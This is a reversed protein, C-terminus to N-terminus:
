AAGGRGEHFIFAVGGIELRWGERLLNRGTRKGNVYIGNTSHLDEVVWRNNWRYIRAHHRSVTEWGPFEPSVVLDNDPARGITVAEKQLPFLRPRGAIRAELRPPSPPPQPLPATPRKPKPPRRRLFLAVLLGLMVLLVVGCGLGLLLPVPQPLSPLFPVGLGGSPTATPATPPETV